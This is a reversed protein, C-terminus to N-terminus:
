VCALCASKTVLVPPSIHYFPLRCFVSRDGHEPAHLATRKGKYVKGFTGEGLLELLSVNDVGSTASAVGIERRMSEIRDACVAACLLLPDVESRMM